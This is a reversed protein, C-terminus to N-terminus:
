ALPLYLYSSWAVPRDLRSRAVNRGVTLLFLLSGSAAHTSIADNTRNDDTGQDTWKGVRQRSLKGKTFGGGAFDAPPPPPRRWTKTTWCSSMVFSRVSARRGGRECPGCFKRRCATTQAAPLPMLVDIACIADVALDDFIARLHRLNGGCAHADLCDLPMLTSFLRSAPYDFQLGTSPCLLAPKGSPPRIAPARFQRM